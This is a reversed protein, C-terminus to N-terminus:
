STRLTVCALTLRRAPGKKDLIKGSMLVAIVAMKATTGEYVEIDLACAQSLQIAFAV